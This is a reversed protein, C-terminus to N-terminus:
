TVQTKKKIKYIHSGATFLQTKEIKANSGELSWSINCLKKFHSLKLPDVNSSLYSAFM